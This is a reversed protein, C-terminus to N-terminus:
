AEPRKVLYQTVTEAANPSWEPNLELPGEAFLAEQINDYWHQFNESTVWRQRDTDLCQFTGSDLGIRRCLDALIGSTLGNVGLESRRPDETALMSNLFQLLYAHSVKLNVRAVSWWTGDCATNRKRPLSLAEKVTRLKM